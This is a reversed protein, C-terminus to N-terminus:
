EEEVIIELPVPFFMDDDSTEPYMKVTANRGDWPWPDRNVKFHNSLMTTLSEKVSLSRHQWAEDPLSISTNYGPIDEPVECAGLMMYLFLYYMFPYSWSAHSAGEVGIYVKSNFPQYNRQFLYSNCANVIIFKKSFDRSLGDMTYPQKFYDANFTITKVFGGGHEGGPRIWSFDSYDKLWYHWLGRNSTYKLTYYNFWKETNDRYDNEICPMATLSFPTGHCAIYIMGYDYSMTEFDWPSIVNDWNATIKKNCLYIPSALNKGVGGTGTKDWATVPNEFDFEIDNSGTKVVKVKNYLESSSTIEAIGVEPKRPIADRGKEWDFANLFLITNPIFTVCDSSMIPTAFSPKQEQEEFTNRSSSVDTDDEFEPKTGVAIAIDNDFQVWYAYIDDDNRFGGIVGPPFPPGSPLNGSLWDVTRQIAEEEGLQEEWQEYEYLVSSVSKDYYEDRISSPTPPPTPEIAAGFDVTVDGFVDVYKTERYRVKKDGEM